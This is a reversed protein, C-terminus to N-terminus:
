IWEGEELNLEKVIQKVEKRLRVYRMKLATEKIGKEQAIQKMQKKDVYRLQYLDQQEESLQALVYVLFSSEDIRRDREQLIALLIDQKEDAIEEKLEETSRKKEKRFNELVKIRAVKYLFATPNEHQLFTKGKEFALLFVEQTLDEAKPLNNVMAYIYNYIRIYNQRCLQEFDKM